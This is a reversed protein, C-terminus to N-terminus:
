NWGIQPSTRGARSPEAPLQCARCMIAIVGSTVRFYRQFLLDRGTSLSQSAVPMAASWAVLRDAMADVDSLEPSNLGFHDELETWLLESTEARGDGATLKRLLSATLCDCEDPAVDAVGIPDWQDLLYRLNPLMDRKTWVDIVCQGVHGGRARLWPRERAVLALCPGAGAPRVLRLLLYPVYRM